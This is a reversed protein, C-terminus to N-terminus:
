KAYDRNPNIYRPNVRRPALHPVSFFRFVWSFPSPRAFGAGTKWAGFAAALLGALVAFDIRMPNPGPTIPEM